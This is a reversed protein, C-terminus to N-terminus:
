IAKTDHSRRHGAFGVKVPGCLEEVQAPDEALRLGKSPDPDEIEAKDDETRGGGVVEPFQFGPIPVQIKIGFAALNRTQNQEVMSADVNPLLAARALASRTEAQRVMEAALRARANGDPALALDVAEKLGLRMAPPEAAVTGVALLLVYLSKM